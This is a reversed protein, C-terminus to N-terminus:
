STPIPSQALSKLFDAYEKVHTRREFRELVERANRGLKERLTHDDLLLAIKQALDKPSGDTFLGNERDRLAHHMVGVKTCIVPLGLAMAELAVRPGGESRSNMVFIKGQQLVRYVDTKHGLWGTFTMRQLIGLQRAHEECHRRDPGDGVVLLTVDEFEALADLLERLGKHRIIRGCFVLDYKKAITPDPQLADHDLYFSPHVQIKHAPIGWARLAQVAEHSVARIARARRMRFLCVRLCSLWRELWARLTVAHPYGEIHHVELVYPIKTVRALIWAGLGNYFPPYEHVTMVDHHHLTVLERGKRLIWFPQYWLGHPSPHFYVNLFPQAQRSRSDSRGRLRLGTLCPNPSPNPSRPCIIDIRDWHKAFEELTYYFAGRRGALMSRDGSIMLLKM